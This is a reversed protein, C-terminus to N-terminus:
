MTVVIEHREPTFGPILEVILPPNACPAAHPPNAAATRLRKSCVAAPSTGGAATYAACVAQLFDDCGSEPSKPDTCVKNNLTIWPVYQHNAPTAKAAAAMLKKSEPGNYCTSLVSYDMNAKTACSKVQTLMSDGAQEMCHYFTFHQRTAPYHSIACQEWRNGECEQPGHQCQYGGQGNAHANGFPVITLEVMDLFGPSNVARFLDTKM